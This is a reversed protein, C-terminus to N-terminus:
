EHGDNKERPTQKSRGVLSSDASYPRRQGPLNRDPPPALISSGGVAVVATPVCGVPICEQAIISKGLTDRTHSSLLKCSHFM